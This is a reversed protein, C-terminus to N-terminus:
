DVGGSITCANNFNIWYGSGPTMNDTANVTYYEQPYTTADFGYIPYAVSGTPSSPLYNAALKNIGSKFGTMWWGAGTISYTPSPINPPCLSKRGQFTLTVPSSGSIYVWYAKGDTMTTLSGPAGPAFSQWVGSAGGTFYWASTVNSMVTALVSNIDTNSPILNLSMLNWGPYLTITDTWLPCGTTPTITFPYASQSTATNGCTNTATVRIVCNTLSTASLGPVAWPFSGSCSTAQPQNSLNAVAPTLWSGGGNTSLEILISVRSTTSQTDSVTWTINQVTGAEWSIGSAMPTCLTIVPVGTCVPLITFANSITTTCNPATLWGATATETDCVIVKIRAGTSSLGSPITWPVTVVGQAATGSTILFYNSGDVSYYLEYNLSGAVNDTQTWTINDTSGAYWSTNSTPATIAVTPAVVDVIRFNATSNNSVVNSACDRAQVQIRCTSSKVNSPVTWSYTRDGVTQATLWSSTIATPYLIGGDTSLLINYDLTSGISSSTTYTITQASGGNWIETGANPSTITVGISSGSTVTFNSASQAPTAPNTANDTVLLKVKWTSSDAGAPIAWDTSYTGPIKAESFINTWAGGGNTSYQATVNCTVAYPCNDSFSYQLPYTPTTPKYCSGGTFTILSAVPAANDVYIAGTIIPSTVGSAVVYVNYLGASAGVPVNIIQTLTTGTANETAGVSAYSTSGQYMFAQCAHNASDSGITYSITVSSLPKVIAPALTTPNTVVPDAVAEVAAPPMIVALTSFVLAIILLLSIGYHKTIKM